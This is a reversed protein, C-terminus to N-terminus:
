AHISDTHMAARRRELWITYLGFVVMGFFMEICFIGVFWGGSLFFCALGGAWWLAAVAGQVAWRLIIANAAHAFGVTMFIAAIYTPGGAQHTFIGTFCYLSLSVGMMSWIASCARSHTNAACNQGSRRRIWLGVLQLIMGASITVPWTLVHGPFEWEFGMGALDVLGWLVFIWGFRGTARRGEAIMTEMLELRQLLDNRNSGSDPTLDIPM